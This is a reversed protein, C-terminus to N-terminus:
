AFLEFSNDSNRFRWFTKRFELLRKTFVDVAILSVIRCKSMFPAVPKLGSGRRTFAGAHLVFRRRTKDFFAGVAVISHSLQYLLRSWAARRPNLDRKLGTGQQVM